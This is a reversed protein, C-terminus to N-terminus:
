TVVNANAEVIEQTAAALKEAWSFDDQWIARLESDRWPIACAQLQALLLAWDMTLKPTYSVDFQYVPAIFPGRLRLVKDYSLPLFSTLGDTVTYTVAAEPTSWQLTGPLLTCTYAFAVDTRGSDNFFLPLPCNHALGPVPWALAAKEYTNVPDFALLRERLSSKLVLQVLQEIRFLGSLTQYGPALTNLARTWAIDAKYAGPTVRRCQPLGNPQGRMLVSWTVNLM